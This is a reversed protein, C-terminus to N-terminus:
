LGSDDFSFQVRYALLKLNPFVSAAYRAGEPFGSAILLGRCDKGDLKRFWGLYRAIQGVSSDKAEGVKLEIVVRNGSSDRALIDIRGVETVFQRAVFELGREILELNNVLHDEIDRELGISAEVLEATGSSEDEGETPEWENPGHKEEAYIEFTGDSNKYLFKQANPHHIYGKPNNVACGYLHAQLTSRQWKGPYASMVAAKIEDSTAPRSMPELVERIARAM